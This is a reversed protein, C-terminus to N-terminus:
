RVRVPPEGTRQRPLYYDAIGRNLASRAAALRRVSRVKAPATLALSKGVAARQVERHLARQRQQAAYSPGDRRVSPLPTTMVMDDAFPVGFHRCSPHLLGAAVAQALSAKVIEIRLAGTSDMVSVATGVPTRGSLSLVRYEFPLCRPCCEAITTKDVMILDLENAAMAQMQVALALRSAATRTAMTAYAPLTWHRGARDVFATLGRGALDDLVTQAADIGGTSLAAVTARQFVDDADRLLNLGAGRLQTEIAAWTTTSTVVAPPTFLTHPTTTTLSTTTEIGIRRAARGLVATTHDLALNVIATSEARLRRSVRRVSTGHLVSTVAPALLATVATAAAGLLVGVAIGVTQATDERRGGPTQLPATVDPVRM